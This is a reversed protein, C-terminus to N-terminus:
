WRQEIPQRRINSSPFASRFLLAKVADERSAEIKVVLLERISPGTGDAFRDARAPEPLRAIRQAALDM